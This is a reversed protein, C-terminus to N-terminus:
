NCKPTSLGDGLYITTCNPQQSSGGTRPSIHASDANSKAIVDVDCFNSQMILLSKRAIARERPFNAYTDSEMAEMSALTNCVNTPWRDTAEASVITLFYLFTGTIKKMRSGKSQRRGQAEETARVASHSISGGYLTERSKTGM